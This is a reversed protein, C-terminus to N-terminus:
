GPPNLNVETLTWLFNQLLLVIFRPHNLRQLGTFDASLAGSLLHSNQHRGSSERVEQSVNPHRRKYPILVNGTGRFEIRALSTYSYSYKVQTSLTLLSANMRDSSDRKRDSSQVQSFMRTAHRSVVGYLWLAVDGSKETEFLMKRTFKILSATFSSHSRKKAKVLCLTGKLSPRTCCSLDTSWM